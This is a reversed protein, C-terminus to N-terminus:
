QRNTGRGGRRGPRQTGTPPTHVPVTETPAPETTPVTEPIPELFAPVSEQSQPNLFDNDETEVALVDDKSDLTVEKVETPTTDVMGDDDGSDNGPLLFADIDDVPVDAKKTKTVVPPSALDIGVYAFKIDRAVEETVSDRTVLLDLHTRARRLLDSDGGKIMVTVPQDAAAVAAGEVIRSVDARSGIYHGAIAPPAAPARRTQRTLDAMTRGGRVPKSAVAPKPQTLDAYYKDTSRDDVKRPTPVAGAARGDSMTPKVTSVDASRYTKDTSRDDVRRPTPKRRQGGSMESAM